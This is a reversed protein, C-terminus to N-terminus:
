EEHHMSAEAAGTYSAHKVRIGIGNASTAPVILEGGPAAVWRYTARQNIGQEFLETAATYTGEGSANEGAAGEAAADAPDLATPTVSTSTPAVTYRQVVWFIANDAPTGSCGITWDYVRVRLGTGGTIHLVTTYSSTVANEAGTEAYRAGM